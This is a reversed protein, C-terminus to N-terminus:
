AAQGSVQRREEASTVAAHLTEVQMQLVGPQRVRQDLDAQEAGLAIRRHEKFQGAPSQLLDLDLGRHATKAQTGFVQRTKHRLKLFQEIVTRLLGQGPFLQAFAQACPEAIVRHLTQAKLGVV